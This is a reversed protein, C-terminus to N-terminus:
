LASQQQSMSTPTVSFLTCKKNFSGIRSVWDKQTKILACLIVM